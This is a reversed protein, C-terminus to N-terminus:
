ALTGVIDRLWRDYGPTARVREPVLFTRDGVARIRDDLVPLVFMRLEFSAVRRGLGAEVARVADCSSERCRM